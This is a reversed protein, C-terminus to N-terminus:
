SAKARHWPRHCYPPISDGSLAGLQFLAQKLAARGERRMPLLPLRLDEAMQGRMSLAAKVPTPNPESFLLRILPRLSEFLAWADEIRNAKMLAYIEVFRETLINASAMIGGAGGMQVTLFFGDDDGSLVQLGDIDILGQLSEITQGCAKIAPFRGQAHLRAVCPLRMSTGTRAPVNYLVIPKDTAEAVSMFHRYLGETTPRVYSPASVLFGAIPMDNLSRAADAVQATAPGELGVLVPTRVDPRRRASVALVSDLLRRREDARLAYGEGTTGAVVLGHVGSDLLHQAHDSAAAHDIAGHFFPTPMPVWVGSFDTHPM